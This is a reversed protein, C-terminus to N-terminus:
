DDGAGRPASALCVCDRVAEVGEVSAALAIAREVVQRSAATGSLQATGGFAEVFIGTASFHSDRAFAAEIRAEIVSHPLAHGDKAPQGARPPTPAPRAAQSGPAATTEPNDTM